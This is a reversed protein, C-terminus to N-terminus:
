LRRVDPEWNGPNKQYWEWLIREKLFAADLVGPYWRNESLNRWDRCDAPECLIRGAGVVYPSLPFICLATYRKSGREAPVWWIVVRGGAETRKGTIGTNEDSSVLWKGAANCDSSETCRVNRICFTRRWDKEYSLQSLNRHYTCTNGARGSLRYAGTRQAGADQNHYDWLYSASLYKRFYNKWLKKRYSTRGPWYLLYPRLYKRYFWRFYLCEKGTKLLQQRDTSWLKYGGLWEEACFANGEAGRQYGSLYNGTRKVCTWHTAQCQDYSLVGGYRFDISGTRWLRCVM